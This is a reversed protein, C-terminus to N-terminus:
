GVALPASVHSPLPPPAPVQISAPLAQVDAALAKGDGHMATGDLVGGRDVQLSAYRVDGHVSGGPLVRLHGRVNIRGVVRGGVALEDTILEGQVCGSPGVSVVGQVELSGDIQGDVQMRGTSRIRGEIVAGSGIVTAESQGKSKNGFM